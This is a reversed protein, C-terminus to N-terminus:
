TGRFLQQYYDDLAAIGMQSFFTSYAMWIAIGNLDKFIPPLFRPPRVVGDSVRALLVPVDEHAVKGAFLMRVLEPRCARIAARIFHFNTVLGKTYALDKTFPAGGNLTGGRFVRKAANFCEEEEYGETRHWEFVDIFDAGDEAKDIAIVRDNLRRARRPHSRFTLVEMLAALGEQVATTRPPGKALWRAVHQSAGNLSTAVHVWGEHVELIDVDVKSFRAAGRIKVYDSGAAADSVIGDDLSVHVADEGFYERFRGQLMEVVQASDLNREEAPGLAAEDLSTLLAYLSHAIDRITTQGDPFTDKPSGYLRRAYGYFEPRGRALLMKCVDRYELCTARLIRALADGAGLDRRIDDALLQFDRARATPDFGLDIRAYGEADARPLERYRAKRFQEWAGPEWKVANLIRIPAQARNVRDAYLAIKEKYSRWFGEAPLPMPLPPPLSTRLVDDDDPESEPSPEDFNAAPTEFVEPALTAEVPPEAREVAESVRSVRSASPTTEQGEARADSRAPNERARPM